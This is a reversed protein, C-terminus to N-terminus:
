CSGQVPASLSICPLEARVYKSLYKFPITIRNAIASVDVSFSEVHDITDFGFELNISIM